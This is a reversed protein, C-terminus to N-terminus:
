DATRAAREEALERRRMPMADILAFLTDADVPDSRTLKVGQDKGILRAAFRGRPADYRRRLAEASLDSPAGSVTVAGAVVEIVPVAREALAQGHAALAARQRSLADSNEADAFVLFPRARWAYAALPADARAARDAGDSQAPVPAALAATLAAGLLFAARTM